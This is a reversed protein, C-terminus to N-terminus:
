IKHFFLFRGRGWFFFLFSVLFSASFPLFSVRYSFQIPLGLARAQIYIYAYIIHIFIYIYSTDAFTFPLNTHQVHQRTCRRCNNFKLVRAAHTSERERERECMCTNPEREDISPVTNLFLLRRNCKMQTPRPRAGKGGRCRDCSSVTLMM